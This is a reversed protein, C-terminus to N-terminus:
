AVNVEGGGEVEMMEMDEEVAIALELFEENKSISMWIKETQQKWTRLVEMSINGIIKVLKDHANVPEPFGKFNQFTDHWLQRWM